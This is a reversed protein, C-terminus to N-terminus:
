EVKKYVNLGIKEERGYILQNGETSAVIITKGSKSSGFEKSLDIAIELSDGQVDMDVNKFSRRRGKLLKNSEQKYVNLGIKEDRGPLSRSGETSAVITTKGSKSPGFEKLLDVRIKLTDGSIEMEVNKMGGRVVKGAIKRALKPASRPESKSPQVGQLPIERDDPSGTPLPVVASTESLLLDRTDKDLHMLKSFDLKSIVTQKLPLEQLWAQLKSFAPNPGDGLIKLADRVVSRAKDFDQLVSEFSRIIEIVEAMKRSHVFGKDFDTVLHSWAQPTPDGEVKYYNRFDDASIFFEFGEQTRVRYPSASDDLLEVLIGPKSGLFQQYHRTM